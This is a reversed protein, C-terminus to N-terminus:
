LERRVRQAVGSSSRGFAEIMGRGLRQEVLRDQEV